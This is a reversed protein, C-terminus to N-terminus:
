NTLAMFNYSIRIYQHCNICLNNLVLVIIKKKKHSSCYNKQNALPQPSTKKYCSFSNDNCSNCSQIASAHM